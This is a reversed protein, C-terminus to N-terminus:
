IYAGNDYGIMGMYIDIMGYFRIVLVNDDCVFVRGVRRGLASRGLLGILSGEVHDTLRECMAGLLSLGAGASGHFLM